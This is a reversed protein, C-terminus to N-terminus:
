PQWAPVQVLAHRFGADGPETRRWKKRAHGPLFWYNNQHSLAGSPKGQGHRLWGSEVLRQRLNAPVTRYATACPPTLAAGSELEHSLNLAAHAREAAGIFADQAPFCM